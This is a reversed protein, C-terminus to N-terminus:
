MGLLRAATGGYIGDVTEGPLGLPELMRDHYEKSPVLEDLALIDTGFLVKDWAGKWFFHHRFFDPTKNVRWGGWWAGTLDLYFNPHIRAMM